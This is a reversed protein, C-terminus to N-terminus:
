EEGSLRDDGFPRKYVEESLVIKMNNNEELMEQMIAPM